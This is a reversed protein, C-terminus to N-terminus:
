SAPLKGLAQLVKEPTFPTSDLPAGIADAIANGVAPAVCPISTQSVGKSGFPGPGDGNEILTASIAAPLDRMLPLRYQFADANMVQGEEYVLEECLAIGIGM